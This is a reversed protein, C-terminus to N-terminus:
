SPPSDPGASPTRLRQMYFEGEMKDQKPLYDVRRTSGVGVQRFVHLCFLKQTSTTHYVCLM